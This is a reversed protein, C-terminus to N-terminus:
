SSFAERLELFADPEPAEFTLNREMYPHFFTILRAHLYLRKHISKLAYVEADKGEDGYRVDGLIPHGLHNMHVRIQHTRGTHLQVGVYSLPGHTGLVEYSSRSFRGNEGVVMKTGKVCNGSRVLDLQIDGKQKGPIGHCIAVYRKEVSRERLCEHLYRVTTKEKALLIVGSTHKDLRHVLMPEATKGSKIKQALHAAAFDILTDGGLHGTGSHVVLGAPKNCVLIWEDEYLIKFNKRFVPRNVLDPLVKLGSKPKSLEATKSQVVVKEGEKLRYNEKRRKGDVRVSGTRLLRYIESLPSSALNKRLLRDLRM